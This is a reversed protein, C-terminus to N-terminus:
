FLHPILYLQSKSLGGGGVRAHGGGGGRGGLCGGVGGRTFSGGEVGSLAGTALRCLSLHISSVYDILEVSLSPSLCPPLPSLVLLSPSPLLFLSLLLLPPLSFLPPCFASHNCHYQPEPKPQLREKSVDIKTLQITGGFIFGDRCSDVRGDKDLHKAKISKDSCIVAQM